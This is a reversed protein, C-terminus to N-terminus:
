SFKQVDSYLIGLNKLVIAIGVISVDPNEEPFTKWIQLAELFANEAKNIRPSWVPM